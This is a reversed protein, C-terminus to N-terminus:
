KTTFTLNLLRQKQLKNKPLMGKVAQKLIEEHGKKEIVRKMPVRKLGGPYGSFSEYIKSNLRKETIDLQDVNEVEVVVDAVKNPAYDAREKGMLIVAIESALRGLRKNTADLKITEKQTEAM